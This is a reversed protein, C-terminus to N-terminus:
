ARARPGGDGRRPKTALWASCARYTDGLEAQTFPLACTDDRVLGVARMRLFHECLLHALREEASRRGLNVLWERAIALEVERAWWLAQTIRPHAETIKLLTRQPIVAVVAQTLAAISHDMESLIFVRANCFDGPIFHALIQRRGDPLTKCRCCFGELVVHVLEPV